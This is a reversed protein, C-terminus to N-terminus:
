ASIVDGIFAANLPPCATHLFLCPSPVCQCSKLLNNIIHQERVESVAAMTQWYSLSASRIPTVGAMVSGKGPVLCSGFRGKEQGQGMMALLVPSRFASRCCPGRHDLHCWPCRSTCYATRLIARSLSLNQVWVQHTSPAKHTPRATGLGQFCSSTRRTTFLDQYPGPLATNNPPPSSRCSILGVPYYRSLQVDPPCADMVLLWKECRLKHVLMQMTTRSGSCIIDLNSHYLSSRFPFDNLSGRQQAIWKGLGLDAETQGMLEWCQACPRPFTCSDKGRERLCLDFHTLSSIEWSRSGGPSRQQKRNEPAPFVLCVARHMVEFSGSAACAALHPHLLRCMLLLMGLPKAGMSWGWWREETGKSGLAM